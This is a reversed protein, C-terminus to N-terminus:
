NGFAPLRVVHTDTMEIMGHAALATVAQKARERKHKPDTEIAAAIAGYATVYTVQSDGESENFLNLLVDRATRQHQGLKRAGKQAFPPAISVAVCSTIDEGDEDQGAVVQELRFAHQTGTEDDKSKAVTWGLGEGKTRMVGIVCDMAAFLSSHGRMGKSEDKGTHHVLLVMGGTLQQLAKANAIITGMDKSSNEDSGPAARNLTDLIILGDAGNATRIALALEEVDTGLTIDFQEVIFHLTNPMKRANYKEWAAVRKGMGGEGELVCYTVPCQTVRMGYWQTIGSAVSASLDLALFSKGAGSPGYLAALGVQPLLGRVAWKIPEAQTLQAATLVKFRSSQECSTSAVDNLQLLRRLDVTQPTYKAVASSVLKPIEDMRAAWRADHPGQSSRMLGRLWSVVAGPQTGSAVMSGALDRLADHYVEGSLIQSIWVAHRDFLAGVAAREIVDAGSDKRVKAALEKFGTLESLPGMTLAHGTVTLFRLNSYLEVKLDEITGNVGKELNHAYGFGRLGTGSPSIEIYTVGLHQMLDTAAASPMGDIVCHDLDIGVLGDGNLMVGVGTYGGEMYATVADEHTGWTQSDNSKARSNLLKPNYPVKIPKAGPKGELRWVVWNPKAKLELPINDFKPLRVGPNHACLLAEPVVPLRAGVTPPAAENEIHNQTLM